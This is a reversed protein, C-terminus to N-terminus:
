RAPTWSVSAIQSKNVICKNAFHEFATETDLREISYETKHINLFNEIIKNM